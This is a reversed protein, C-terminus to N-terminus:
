CYTPNDFAHSPTFPTFSAFSKYPCTSCPAFATAPVDCAINEANPNILGSSAPNLAKVFLALLKGSSYLDSITEIILGKDTANGFSLCASCNSIAISKGNAKVPVIAFTNPLSKFSPLKNFLADSIISTTIGIPACM